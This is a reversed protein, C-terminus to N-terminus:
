VYGREDIGMESVIYVCINEIIEIVYKGIVEECKKGLFCCYVVNFEKIIGNIDVIVIGEYVSELVVDLIEVVYFNEYLYKLYYLYFYFIDM